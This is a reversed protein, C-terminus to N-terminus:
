KLARVVNGSYKVLVALPLTFLALWFATGLADRLHIFVLDYVPSQAPVLRLHYVIALIFSGLVAVAAWGLTTKRFFKTWILLLAAAMYSTVCILTYTLVYAWRLPKLSGVLGFRAAPISLGAFLACGVIVHIEDSSFSKIKNALRSSFVKLRNVLPMNKNERLASALRALMVSISRKM